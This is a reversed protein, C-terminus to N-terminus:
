RRVPRVTRTRGAGRVPHGVGDVLLGCLVLAAVSWLVLGLAGAVTAYLFWGVAADVLVLLLGTGAGLTGTGPDTM